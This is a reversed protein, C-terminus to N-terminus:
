LLFGTCTGLMASSPSERIGGCGAGRAGAGEGEGAPTPGARRPGCQLVTTNEQLRSRPIDPVISVGSPVAGQICHKM